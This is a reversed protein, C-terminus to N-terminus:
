YSIRFGPFLTFAYRLSREGTRKKSMEPASVLSFSLGSQCGISNIGFFIDFVHLGGELLGFFREGDSLNRDAGHDDLVPADYAAAVIPAVCVVGSQSVCLDRRDAFGVLLDAVPTQFPTSQIDRELGALHAGARQHLGPDVPDHDARGAVFRAAAARKQIDQLVFFKVM